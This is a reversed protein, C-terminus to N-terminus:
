VWAWFCVGDALEDFDLVRDVKRKHYCPFVYSVLEVTEDGLVSLRVSMFEPDDFVPRPRKTRPKADM